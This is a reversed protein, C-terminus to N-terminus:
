APRRAPRRAGPGPRRPGDLGGRRRERRLEEVRHHFRERITQFRARQVPNLYGAMERDEEQELKVMDGRGAQLGEMLKRVSDSNAAVGPRMQDDLAERLQHQRQM